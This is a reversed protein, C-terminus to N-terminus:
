GDDKDKLSASLIRNVFHSASEYGRQKDIKQIIDDSLSFTKVKKGVTHVM